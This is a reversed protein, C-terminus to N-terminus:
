SDIHKSRNVGARSGTILWISCKEHSCSKRDLSLGAIGHFDQINFRFKIADLEIFNVARGCWQGLM